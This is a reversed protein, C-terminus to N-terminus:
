DSASGYILISPKNENLLLFTFGWFVSVFAVGLEESFRYIKTQKSIYQKIFTTLRQQERLLKEEKEPTLELGAGEDGRYTLGFNVEQWFQGDDVLLPQINEAKVENYKEYLQKRFEDLTPSSNFIDLGFAVNYNYGYMLEELGRLTEGINKYDKM